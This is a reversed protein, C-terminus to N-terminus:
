RPPAVEEASAKMDPLRQDILELLEERNRNQLTSVRVLWGRGLKLFENADSDQSPHDAKNVVLIVPKDVRRLRLAVEEDLGVPGTRNDVVFLLVDAEDIAAEIQSEVEDTLNDPDIHGMGGTDILEFHRKGYEILITMRDRTVGPMDDVIALRRGDLWNFLSSKGVNPRGVIAVRPIAM